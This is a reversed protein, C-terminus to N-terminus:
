KLPEYTEGNGILRWVAGARGPKPLGAAQLPRWLSRSWTTVPIDAVVQLYLPRRAPELTRAASELDATRLESGATLTVAAVVLEHEGDPVSYAVALDVGPISCLANRVSSPPVRGDQTQILSGVPDVLSGGICVSRVHSGDM